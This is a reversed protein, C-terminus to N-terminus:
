YNLQDPSQKERENWLPCISLCTVNLVLPAVFAHSHLRMIGM